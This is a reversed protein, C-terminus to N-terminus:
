YGFSHFFNDFAYGIITFSAVFGDYVGDNRGYRGYFPYLYQVHVRSFGGVPGYDGEHSLRFGNHFRGELARFLCLFENVHATVM